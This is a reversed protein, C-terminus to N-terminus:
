LKWLSCLRALIKIKAWPFQNHGGSSHFVVHTNNKLYWTQPLENSSGCSVLVHLLHKLCIFPYAYLLWSWEMELNGELTFKELSSHSNKGSGRDGMQRDASIEGGPVELTRFWPHSETESYGNLRRSVHLRREKTSCGEQRIM